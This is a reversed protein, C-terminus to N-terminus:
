FLPHSGPQGASGVGREAIEVCLKHLYARVNKTCTNTEM